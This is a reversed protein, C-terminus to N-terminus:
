TINQSNIEVGFYVLFNLKFKEHTYTDLKNHNWSNSFIM